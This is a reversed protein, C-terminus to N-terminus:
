NNFQNLILDLAGNKKVEDLEKNFRSLIKKSNPFDKSVLLKIYSNSLSKDLVNFNKEKIVVTKTRSLKILEKEKESYLDKILQWGHLEAYPVLDVKGSVLQKLASGEEDSYFLNNIGKKEFIENYFFLYGSVVGIRYYSLDEIKNFNFYAKSKKYYFLKVQCPIIGESVFYNQENEKTWETSIYPLAAFAKGSKIFREARKWPYFKYEPDVGIRNFTTNIINILFGNGEEQENIYPPFESLIILLKDRDQYTKQESNKNSLIFFLILVYFPIILLLKIKKM